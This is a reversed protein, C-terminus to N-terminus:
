FFFNFRGNRIERIIGTDYGYATFEFTGEIKRQEFDLKTVKIYNTKTSDVYFDDNVSVDIMAAQHYRMKYVSISDVPRQGISFLYDGTEDDVDVQIGFHKLGVNYTLVVTPIGVHDEEKPTAPIGDVEFYIDDRVTPEPDINFLFDCSSFILSGVVVFFSYQSLLHKKM